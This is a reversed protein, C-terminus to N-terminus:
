KGPTGAQALLRLARARVGNIVAPDNAIKQLIHAIVTVETLEGRTSDAEMLKLEEDLALKQYRYDYELRRGFEMTTSLNQFLTTLEQVAPITSYNYHAQTTTQADKYALTKEGTSALNKKKSDIEGAFYEAKKALDFIRTVAAQGLSFDTTVKENSASDHTLKGNSTYSTQGNAAVSIEYHSPDSGPFDCTFSVLASQAQAQALLVNLLVLSALKISRLGLCAALQRLGCLFM